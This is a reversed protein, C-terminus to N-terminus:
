YWSNDGMRPMNDELKYTYEQLQSQLERVVDLEFALTRSSSSQIIHFRRTAEEIVNHMHLTNAVSGKAIPRHSRPSPHQASAWIPETPVIQPDVQPLQSSRLSHQSWTPLSQSSTPSPSLSPSVFTATRQTLAESARKDIAKQLENGILIEERGAFIDNLKQQFEMLNSSTALLMKFSERNNLTWEAETKTYVKVFSSSNDGYVKRICTINDYNKWCGRRPGAFVCYLPFTTRPNALDEPQGIDVGSQM